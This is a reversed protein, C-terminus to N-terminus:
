LVAIVTVRPVLGFKLTRWAGAGTVGEEGTPLVTAILMSQGESNGRCFAQLM